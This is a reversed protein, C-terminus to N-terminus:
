VLDKEPVYPAPPCEQLAFRKCEKDKIGNPVAKALFMTLLDQPLRPNSLILKKFSLHPPNSIVMPVKNEFVRQFFSAQECVM